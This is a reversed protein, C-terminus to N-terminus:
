EFMLFKRAVDNKLYDEKKGFFTKKGAHLIHTAYKLAVPIDHTIMIMTIGSKNLEEIIGYFDAMVVPDLGTVPEDLLLVKETACLARALLVRQKQGGSLESFSKKALEAIDLREINKQALAKEEKSYFPRLGMKGQCGSLVIEYVSAPFDNQTVTQQPLYGIEKKKLGEGFVVEGSITPLLGLLTKVLTSKGAGNEGVICLFDGQEIKFNVKELVKKGEYGLTLDNGTLIAM